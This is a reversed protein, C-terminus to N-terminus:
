DGAALVALDIQEPQYKFLAHACSALTAGTTLVDDVLLIRKGRIDDGNLAEFVESVNKWRDIRSKNTQTETAQNRLLLRKCKIGLAEAIGHGFQESQNYGRIERKRRHLPVPVIETWNDDFGAEKLLYGYQLGVLRALAPKNKYKIQHLLNQSLGKKSFRLYAMVKVVPALGLLKTKLDNDESILHYNTVPLAAICIKCLENEFPFLSRNCLCCTEPFVLSLFDTWYNFRM